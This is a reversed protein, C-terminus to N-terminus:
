VGRFEHILNRTLGLLDSPTQAKIFYNEIKQIIKSNWFCIDNVDLQEWEYFSRAKSVPHSEDTLYTNADVFDHLDSFSTFGEPLRGQTIDEQILQIAVKARYDCLSHLTLTQPLEITPTM